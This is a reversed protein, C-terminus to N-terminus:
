KKIKTQLNSFFSVIIKLHDVTNHGISAMLNAGFLRSEMTQGCWSVIIFTEVPLMIIVLSKHYNCCFDCHCVSSLFARKDTDNSVMSVWEDLNKHINKPPNETYNIFNELKSFHEETKLSGFHLDSM